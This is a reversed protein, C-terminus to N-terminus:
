RYGKRRTELQRNRRKGPSGYPCHRTGTRVPVGPCACPTTGIVKRTTTYWLASFSDLLSFTKHPTTIGRTGARRAVHGLAALSPSQLSIGAVADVLSLRKTPRFPILHAAGGTRERVAAYRRLIPSGTHRRRSLVTTVM